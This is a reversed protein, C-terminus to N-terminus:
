SAGVLGLRDRLLQRAVDCQGDAVLQVFGADFADHWGVIETSMGAAKLENRVEAVVELADAISAPLADALQDRLWSALAPSRGNSSVAVQVDGRRVVAPLTFTCLHPVDAVNVPVGIAVADHHVQEDVARVGTASIVLRYAAVEGRRYQRRQVSVHERGLLGDVVTPAVVTVVAGANLLGDVKRLGVRGGGVVLVPAGALLLNVPYAPGYYTNFGIPITPIRPRSLIANCGTIAHTVGRASRVM